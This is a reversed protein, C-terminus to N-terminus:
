WSMYPHRPNYLFSFDNDILSLDFEVGAPLRNGPDLYYIPEVRRRWFGIQKFSERIEARSTGVIVEATRPDQSATHAALLSIARWADPRDAGTRLDLDVIRAQGGVRALMFYGRL